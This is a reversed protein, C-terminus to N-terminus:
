SSLRSLSSQGEGRLPNELRFSLYKANKPQLYVRGSETALLLVVDRVKLGHEELIGLVKFKDVNLLALNREMIKGESVLTYPVEPMEDTSTKRAMISLKGNTELIAYAVHEPTFYGQQRLASILDNTNMNTRKLTSSDIGEGDILILPKGNVVRRVNVSRSSLWVILTHSLYLTLMPILGYTVDVETSAIPVSAVNAILLTIVFEFPQLEGLQRKGMLRMIILM